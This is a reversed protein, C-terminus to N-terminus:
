EGRELMKEITELNVDEIIYREIYNIKVLSIKDDNRKKDNKILNFVEEKDILYDLPINLRKIIGRVKFKLLPNNIVYLLGKAIAEGHLCKNSIEIAHGFTHGLNLIRRKDLEKEDEEIVKIKYEISKTIIKEINGKPNNFLNILEESFLLGMKLAEVLGNNYNRDDLTSLTSFDILVLKPQYFTGIVNKLGNFDIGTKGGVSSDIMSLTTTPVNIFDIGRKYTSSVFASLDGVVGGGVAIIVDNRTFEHELLFKNILIYYNINKSEEGHKIIYKYGEKAQRLIEDSYFSPVLDDTIVLVKKDLSYYSSLDKIINNGLIVKYSNEKLNVNLEMYIM